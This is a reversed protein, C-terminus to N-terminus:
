RARQREALSEQLADIQYLSVDDLGAGSPRFPSDLVRLLQLIYLFILSIFGLLIADTAPHPVLTASASKEDGGRRIKFAMTRTPGALAVRAIIQSPQDIPDGDDEVVQDGDALGAKSAPSNNIVHKLVIGGAPGKELDVGLWARKSPAATGAPEDALSTEPAAGLGLALGVAVIRGARGLRTM